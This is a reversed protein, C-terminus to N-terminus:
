APMIQGGDVCLVQGTVFRADDGAFFVAAGAVDEPQLVTQMASMYKIMDQFGRPVIKDTAETMTVGPSICNVTVGYKGLQSAMFKTLGIVGWKTQSYSFAGVEEFPRESPPLVYMYAANSSQNIIRGYKQEVMYPAVNRTMLWAGHLNVDFVRKLYEPSNDSNDIDYYLAANNVLIDIRGFRAATHEACAAASADDSIDTVVLEVEGRGKLDELARAGREPSIEAIVVKAGEALFREAFAKGIGQGAGTIIATKGELRM